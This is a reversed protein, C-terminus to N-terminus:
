SKVEATQRVTPCGNSLWQDMDSKRWRLMKKPGGPSLDVPAPIRGDEAMREVTNADCCLYDRAIQNRTLLAPREDVM